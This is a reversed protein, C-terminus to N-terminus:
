WAGIARLASRAAAKVAASNLYLIFNLAFWFVFVGVSFIKHRSKHVARYIFFAACIILYPEVPLRTRPVGIILAAIIIFYVVPSIVLAALFAGYRKFIIALGMLALPFIFAFSFNYVGPGAFAAWDFPSFFYMLRLPIYRYIRSPDKKILGITHKVLFDCGQAEPMRHAAAM